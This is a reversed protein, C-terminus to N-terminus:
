VSQPLDGFRGARRHFGDALGVIQLTIRFHSPHQKNWDFLFAVAPLLGATTATTANPNFGGQLVVPFGPFTKRDNRKISYRFFSPNNL